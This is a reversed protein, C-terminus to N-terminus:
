WRSDICELIRRIPFGIAGPERVVTRTIAPKPAILARERERNQLSGRLEKSKRSKSWHLPTDVVLAVGADLIREVILLKPPPHDASGSLLRLLTDINREPRLVVESQMDRNGISYRDPNVALGDIRHVPGIRFCREAFEAKVSRNLKDHLGNWLLSSGTDSARLYKAFADQFCLRPRSRPLRLCQVPWRWLM